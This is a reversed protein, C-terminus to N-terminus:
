VNYKKVEAQLLLKQNFYVQIKQASLNYVRVLQHWPGEMIRENNILEYKEVEIAGSLKTKYTLRLEKVGLFSLEDRFSSFFSSIKTLSISPNELAFWIEQINAVRDFGMEEEAKLSEGTNLVYQVEESAIYIYIYAYINSSYSRIYIPYNHFYKTGISFLFFLICILHLLYKTM